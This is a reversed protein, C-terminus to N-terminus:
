KDSKHTRAVFLEYKEDGVSCHPTFLYEIRIRKFTNMYERFRWHQCVTFYTKTPDPIYADLLTNLSKDNKWKNDIYTAWPFAFYNYPVNESGKFLDYICKETIVPEQWKADYHVFDYSNMIESSIETPGPSNM